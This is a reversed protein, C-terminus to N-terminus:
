RLYNWLDNLWGRAGASDYGDGGFLWLRGSSDRWSVCYERGGPHNTPVRRGQTGYDGRQNLTKYGSVWTWELTIPDFKWLDSLLGLNGSSNYGTGGFLWLKGNPDLWSSAGTSGGPINLLSGTGITGYSGSQDIANSGSVWTWQFTTPDYKWLDNLHGLNGVLDYGVGGFLWLKGNSDRWSASGDRGGPLNSPDATGKTGYVGPRDKAGSGSVWTWEFTTPDFKWLDNLEGSAGTADLGSGGLLWFRGSSDLWSMARSRAGPFNSPDATGQTGYVGVQGKIQSGSVWTWELTTQDFKWLDNLLGLNGVSDFGWGGFLWFNDSTDLWSGCSDRAGPVNTPAAIRRLGYSGWQGVTNSGSVWTWELTSPNYKWLDNLHEANSSSDVGHGGFLWLRGSSDFWSSVYGRAGPFNSSSAIGKTGYVGAQGASNSGSVWAWGYTSEPQDQEKLVCASILALISIALISSRWAFRRRSDKLLTNLPMKAKEKAGDVFRANAVLASAM